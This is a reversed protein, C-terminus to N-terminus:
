VIFPYYNSGLDLKLQYLKLYKNEHGREWALGKAQVNLWIDIANTESFAKKNSNPQSGHGFVQSKKQLPKKSKPTKKM